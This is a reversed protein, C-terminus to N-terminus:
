RRAEREILWGLLGQALGHCAPQEDRDFVTLQRLGAVVFPPLDGCAWHFWCGRAGALLERNTQAHAALLPLFADCVLTDLRTGGIANGCIERNWRDRLGAFGFRHRVERTSLSERRHISLRDAAQLEPNLRHGASTGAALAQM